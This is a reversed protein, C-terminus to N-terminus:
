FPTAGQKIWNKVLTQLEESIPEGTPPMRDGCSPNGALKEVLLSEEPKGPVVRLKGSNGCGCTSLLGGDPGACMGSAKVNLLAAGAGVISSLGLNGQRTSGHCQADICSKAFVAKYVNTITPLTLDPPEVVDFHKGVAPDDPLALAHLKDDPHGFYYTLGSTVYVRGNNVVPAGIITGETKFEYLKSGDSTDFAELLREAGLFGMGNVLTMPSWVWAPLQREWVTDLTLPHLAFLVSTTKDTVSDGNSAESGPAESTTRNNVTYLYEGDWALAQFIGGIFASGAGLVRTVIQEGSERDYVFLSGSKSGAAVYHKKEYDFVVPNAGFDSDPSRPNITTFVDGANAQVHWNVGGNKMDLAFISDSGPGANETYNNGTAAYLTRAPPDLAVTSWVACGNEGEGATYTQWIIHGSKKDLAVVSGKFTANAGTGAEENSSVGVFVRDGYVIPTSFGAFQPHREVQTQWIVDGTDADLAYIFGNVGNDIYLVGNDYTPSSSTGISEAPTGGQTWEVSGSDANISSIGSSGATFVHKGVVTVTSLLGLPISWLEKLDAVNKKTLTPENTNHWTSQVDYAQNTWTPGM